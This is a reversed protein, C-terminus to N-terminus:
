DGYEADTLRERLGNMIWPRAEERIELLGSTMQGKLHHIERVHKLIKTRATEDFGSLDDLLKSAIILAQNHDNEDTREKVVELVANITEHKMTREKTPQNIKVERVDWESKERLGWLMTKLEQTSLHREEPARTIQFLQTAM